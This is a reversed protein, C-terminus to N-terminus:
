AAVTVPPTRVSRKTVTLPLAVMWAMSILAPLRQVGVLLGVRVGSKLGVAVGVAEGEKVRLGLKVTLGLAVGV